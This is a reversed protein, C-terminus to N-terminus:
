LDFQFCRTALKTELDQNSIAFYARPDHLSAIELHPFLSMNLCFSNTQLDKVKESRHTTKCTVDALQPSCSTGKLLYHHLLIIETTSMDSTAKCPWCFFNGNTKQPYIHTTTIKRVYSTAIITLMFQCKVSVNFSGTHRSSQYNSSLRVKRDNLPSIFSPANFNLTFAPLFIWSTHIIDAAHELNGRKM